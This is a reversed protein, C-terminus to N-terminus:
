DIVRLADMNFIKGQVRNEMIVTHTVGEGLGYFVVPTFTAVEQVTQPGTATCNGKKFKICVIETVM